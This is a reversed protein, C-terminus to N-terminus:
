NIKAKNGVDSERAGRGGEFDCHILDCDFFFSFSPWTLGM